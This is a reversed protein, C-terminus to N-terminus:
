HSMHVSKSPTIRQTPTIELMGKSYKLEDNWDNKIQGPHLPPLEETISFKAGYKDTISQVFD